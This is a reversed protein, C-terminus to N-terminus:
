DSLITDIADYGIMQQKKLIKSVKYFDVSEASFVNGIVCNNLEYTTLLQDIRTNLYAYEGEKLGVHLKKQFIIALASAHFSDTVVCESNYLLNLFDIPSVCKMKKMKHFIHYDNSVTIIECNMQKSLAYAFTKM